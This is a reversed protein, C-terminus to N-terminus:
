LEVQAVFGRQLEDIIWRLHDADKWYGMRQANHINAVLGHVFANTLIKSGDKNPLGNKDFYMSHDLNASLDLQIKTEKLKPKGMGPEHALEIVSTGMAVITNM